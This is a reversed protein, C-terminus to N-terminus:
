NKGNAMRLEFAELESVAKIAEMDDEKEESMATSKVKVYNKPPAFMPPAHSQPTPKSSKAQGSPRPAPNKGSLRAEFEDLEDNIEAVSEEALQYTEGLEDAEAKKKTTKETM